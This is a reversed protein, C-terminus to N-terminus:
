QRLASRSPSFSRLRVVDSVLGSREDMCRRDSRTYALVFLSGNPPDNAVRGFTTKFGFVGNVAAPNRISGGGDTGVQLPGLGLGAAVGAGGSSGGSVYQLDWANPTVGALKTETLARQGFEATQTKGLIVAGAERLRAAAPCDETQIVDSTALSGKRTPFGRVHLLDKVGVPVGDLVGLPAARVWRSESARAQELTTEADIIRYANFHPQLLEIRELVAKAVEIPSFAKARFGAVLEAASLQTLDATMRSPLNTPPKDLAKTAQRSQDVRSGGGLTQRSRFSELL